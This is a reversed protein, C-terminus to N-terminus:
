ASELYARKERGNKTNRLNCCGEFVEEFLFYTEKDERSSDGANNQILEKKVLHHTIEKDWAEHRGRWGQATKDDDLLFEMAATSLGGGFYEQPEYGFLRMDPDCIFETFETQGKKLYKKWSEVSDTYIVNGPVEFSSYTTWEKGSISRFNKTVLMDSLFPVDLFECIEKVKEEPSCVLDEYRLVFLRDKIQPDRMLKWSFDAHKRWHQAFSYMLPVLEPNKEGVKMSSAIAGRPDRIIVIFKADKFASALVPLFEIVWNDNSGCWSIDQAEYVNELLSLGSNFLERITDGKMENTKSALEKAALGMRTALQSQINILSNVSLKIDLSSSQIARMRQLKSESFYYDELPQRIDYLSDVKQVIVENRFARFLPLFPDSAVKIEPNVSLIRAFFTTGGRSTGFTFLPRSM